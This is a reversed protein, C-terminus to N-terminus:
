HASEITQRVIKELKEMSEESYGIESHVIKNNKLLYITPWTNVRYAEVAAASTFLLPYDVGLKKQFAKIENKKESLDDKYNVGFVLLGHRSFRESLRMIMPMARICPACGLYWFDLLILKDSLSSDIVVPSNDLTTAVFPIMNAGAELLMNNNNVVPDIFVESNYGDPIRYYTSFINESGNALRLDKITLEWYEEQIGMYNAFNQIRVPLLTRQDLFIVIKYYTIDDYPNMEAEIKWCMIGECDQKSLRSSKMEEIEYRFPNLSYLCSPILERKINARALSGNRTNTNFFIVRKEIHSIRFVERGNYINENATDYIRTFYRLLTDKPQRFIVCNFNVMATTDKYDFYKIRYSANYRFLNNKTLVSASQRLLSIASDRSGAFTKLSLCILIFLVVPIRYDFPLKDKM